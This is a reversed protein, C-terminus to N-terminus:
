ARAARQKDLVAQIRKLREGPDEVPPAHAETYNEWDRWGNFWTSGNKVFGERVRRSSLYNNLANRIRALDAESKVTARFHRLAATKGDKNPYQNWVEGFASEPDFAPPSSIPIPSDPILSSPILTAVETNADPECPAPITSAAEKIHPNQHKEFNLIQIYKQGNISYRRIFEAKDLAALGDGANFSEYPFLEAKIRAPRDELRGERDALTWLGIFLLRVHPKLGALVENKFFGPKINRARPM